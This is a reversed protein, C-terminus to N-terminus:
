ADFHEMTKAITDNWQKTQQWCNFVTIKFKWAQDDFLSQSQRELHYLSPETSYYIKLGKEMLKLCLDSDEFDGLVYNESLGGVDLYNQKELLMCAGTVAPVEKVMFDHELDPMGKHPHMNTWMDDLYPNREFVMGAHQISEDEFLLKFGLTGPMELTKYIELMRTVWGNEKPFVDSNLLLIKDSTAFSVGVNNARAYGLNSKYSVVKFPVNMLNYLSQSVEHITESFRDPDDLVYILEVNKSFDPDNAFISLQYEMFDIRGYLPVIISLEPQASLNGYYKVEPHVSHEEYHKQWLSDLVPGFAEEFVKRFSGKIEIPLLMKTSLEKADLDSIIPWKKYSKIKGAQFTLGFNEINLIAEDLKIIGYFGAKKWEDPVEKKLDGRPYNFFNITGYDPIISIDKISVNKDGYYWGQVLLTIDDIQILSDIHSCILEAEDEITNSESELTDLLNRYGVKCFHDFISNCEGSKVLDSAEPFKELYATENYFDIDKHLKRNANQIEKLGFLHLHM